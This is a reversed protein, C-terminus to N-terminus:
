WGLLHYNVNPASHPPRVPGVAYVVIGGCIVNFHHAVSDVHRLILSDAGARGDAAFFSSRVLPSTKSPCYAGGNFYTTGRVEARISKSYMVVAKSFYYSVIVEMLCFIMSMLM